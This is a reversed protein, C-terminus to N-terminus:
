HKEYPSLPQKLSIQYISPQILPPPDVVLSVRRVTANLVEEQGELSRANATLMLVNAISYSRTGYQSGGTDACCRFLAAAVKVDSSRPARSHAVLQYQGPRMLVARHMGTFLWGTFQLFAVGGPALVRRVERVVSLKDGPPLHNITHQSIVVHVSHSEFPLSKRIDHDLVTPLNAAHVGSIHFDRAAQLLMTPDASNQAGGVKGLTGWAFKNIGSIDAFPFRAKLELVVRGEGAGLELIRFPKSRETISQNHQAVVLEILDPINRVPSGPPFYPVYADVGRNTMDTSKHELAALQLALALACVWRLMRGEHVRATSL